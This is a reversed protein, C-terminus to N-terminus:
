GVVDELLEALAGPMTLFPSHGGPIVVPESGFREPVATKLWRANVAHDDDCVIFSTDVDPWEVLPTIESMFRYGQPQIREIAWETLDPPVDHYFMETATNPGLRYVGEGLDTFEATELEYEPDIPERDRQNRLSSGPEPLLPALFVMKRVPRAVAVIPIVLGAMSHAVLVPDAIGEIAKEIVKAYEGTGAVPDATPLDIALCHHGRKELEPILHEWCWAGHYAGPVLVLEM